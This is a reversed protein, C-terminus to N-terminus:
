ALSALWDKLTGAEQMGVKVEVAEGGKFAIMTPIGRVGYQVPAEMNEDINLKVVKVGDQKAAEAELLPGLAQCPGCWPAWFDVIVPKDSKLVEAEFNSDTINPLGM